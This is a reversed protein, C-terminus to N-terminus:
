NRVITHNVIRRQVHYKYCHLFIVGRLTFHCVQQSLRTKSLLQFPFLLSCVAASEQSRHSKKKM